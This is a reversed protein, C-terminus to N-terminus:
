LPFAKSFYLKDFYIDNRKLRVERINFFFDNQFSGLDCAGPAKPVLHWRASSDRQDNVECTKSCM